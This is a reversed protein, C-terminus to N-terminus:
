QTWYIIGAILNMVFIAGIVSVLFATAMVLAQANPRMFSAGCHAM